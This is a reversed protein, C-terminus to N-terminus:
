QVNILLRAREVIKKRIRNVYAMGGMQYHPPVRLHTVTVLTGPRVNQMYIKSFTYEKVNSLLPSKTDQEIINLLKGIYYPKAYAGKRGGIYFDQTGNKIVLKENVIGEFVSIEDFIGLNADMLTDIKIPKRNKFVVFPLSAELLSVYEQFIKHQFGMHSDTSNLVYASMEEPHRELLNSFAQYVCQKHRVTANSSSYAANNSQTEIIEKIKEVKDQLDEAV